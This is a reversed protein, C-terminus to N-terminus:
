GNNTEEKTNTVSNKLINRYIFVDIEIWDEDDDSLMFYRDIYIHEWGDKVADIVHRLAVQGEPTEINDVDHVRVRITEGSYPFVIPFYKDVVEDILGNHYTHNNQNCVVIRRTDYYEKTGDAHIYKSLSSMRIHNYWVTDDDDVNIQVWQDDEDKVPLLPQGKVLRDFINRVVSASYGSHGQAEFVNLLQEADDYCMLGYREDGEHYNSNKKCQAIENERALKLENKAWQYMNM